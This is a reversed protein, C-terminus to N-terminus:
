RKSMRRRAIGALGLGLLTLTAPEPVTSVAFVADASGNVSNTIAANFSNFQGSIDLTMYFPQPWVFFSSGPGVLNFPNFVVTFSGCNNGASIICPPAKQDGQGSLLTSTAILIDDAAGSTPAVNIVNPQTSNAPLSAADLVTNNLPDLYVALPGGPDATFTCAGAATCNFTGGASFLAYLDYNIGLGTASPDVSSFGDNKYFNDIDYWIDVSFTGSYPTVGPNGNLVTGTYVEGYGGITKDVTLCNNDVPITNKCDEAGAPVLPGGFASPKIQYDPFVDAAFAPTTTVVFAAAVGAAIALRKGASVFSNLM